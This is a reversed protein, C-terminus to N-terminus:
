YRSTTEVSDWSSSGFIQRKFATSRGRKSHYNKVLQSLANLSLVMGKSYYSKKKVEETGCFIERFNDYVLVPFACHSPPPTKSPFLEVRRCNLLRTYCYLVSRCSIEVQIKSM